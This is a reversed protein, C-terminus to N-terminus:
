ANDVKTVSLLFAQEGTIDHDAFSTDFDAQSLTSGNLTMTKGVYDFGVAELFDRIKTGKAVTKSDKKVTTGYTVKIM